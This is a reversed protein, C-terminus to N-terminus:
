AFLADGTDKVILGINEDYCEPDELIAIDGCDTLVGTKAIERFEDEYLSVCDRMAQRMIYLNRINKRIMDCLKANNENPILVQRQEKDILKYKEDVSRYMFSGKELMPIIAKSDLKDTTDSPNIYYLEKFYKRIAEPSAIDDFDECIRSTIARVADFRPNKENRRFVTVVSDAVDRKGERNCRGGAQIISDLGAEERFVYPFDLDVGAEVLSTSVVICPLNEKLRDRIEELKKAISSPTMYTSLHYTGEGKILGYISRAGRRSNVVCLASKCSNVMQAIDKDSHEGIVKYTVRRFFDYLGPVDPCIERVGSSLLGDLSPQTATCLVATCGYNKALEEIARMCSHLYGVPLMQAEDFILVSNVINHLKRCRSTRCSHLSEFFQVNTTVVVPRDWNEAALEAPSREEGEPLPYEATSYHALVNDAGLIESFKDVTQSIINIYPIVYIIRRLNYKTAHELAFALSSLTKGGGTPVTLRYIGREGQAASRCASLIEARKQDLPGSVCSFEKKMYANFKQKLTRIDDGSNRKVAGNSMFKETDLFDADVLASFLMRGLFQLSYNNAFKQPLPSHEPIVGLESEYDGFDYPMKERRIYKAFFTSDNESSNMSGTDPLGSHHGAVIHALMMYVPDRLIIGKKALLYASASSHEYKIKGGDLREQFAQTYKGDDHHLGIIRGYESLGFPGAFKGTLEAVATAHEKMKQRRGDDSKHAYYIM